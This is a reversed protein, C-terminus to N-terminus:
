NEDHRIVTIEADAWEGAPTFCDALGETLLIRGDETLLVMDFDGSGRYLEAAREEGMVYLATSLGDCLIGREGMVTVSLLGASAPFGTKPDLIHVYTRGNEEFYREYGGSTVVARDATEVIGAYGEGRPDKVAVRWLSGDPKTGLTQVNGGLNVLASTVGAERFLAILRDGAYGKAIGGFDIKQGNGLTVSGASVNVKRWDTLPLLSDLEAQSPVRYEGTTFGWARLVPYVTCDFAGDTRESLTLATELVEATETSVPGYGAANLRSVGSEPDTVSFEAELSRILEEAGTLVGDPGGYVTLDM